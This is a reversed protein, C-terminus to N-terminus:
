VVWLATFISFINYRAYTFTITYSNYRLLTTFFRTTPYYFLLHTKLLEHTFLMTTTILYQQGSISKSVWFLLCEGPFYEKVVMDYFDFANVRGGSSCTPCQLQAMVLDPEYCEISLSHSGLHVLWDEPWHNKQNFSRLTFDRKDRTFALFLILRYSDTSLKWKWM